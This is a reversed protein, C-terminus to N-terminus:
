TTIWSHERGEVNLMIVHFLVSFILVVAGLLALYKLLAGINRRVEGQSLFYAFHSGLYKM